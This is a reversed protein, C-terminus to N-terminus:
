KIRGSIGIKFSVNNDLYVDSAVWGKTKASIIIYPRFITNTSTSICLEIRGGLQHINTKFDQNQPQTWINIKSTLIFEFNITKLQYDIYQGEIGFFNTKYNHYNHFAFLVNHKKYKVFFNSGLDYGFSTLYHFLSFNISSFQNIKFSNIGLLFPSALNFLQLNGMKKLYNLEDTTLDSTLRYRRIGVGSNSYGRMNYPEDPRFLDYVWATFDMGTFDRKEINTGEINEMEITLSDASPRSCIRVYAISNVINVLYSLQSPLDLNYYFNDKQLEKVFEYQGEIGAVMLRAFDPNYLAKMINLDNDKVHSVSVTQQGFPFTNMDNFSAVKRHTMVARHWEEHMWGTGLPSYAMIIEFVGNLTNMGLSRWFIATSSYIKQPNFFIRKSAYQYSEAVTKTWSLSQHMSPSINWLPMLNNEFCYPLDVLGADFIFKTSNTDTNQSKIQWLWFLFFVVIILKKM